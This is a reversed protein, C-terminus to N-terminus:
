LVINTKAAVVDSMSSLRAILLFSVYFNIHLSLKCPKDSTALSSESAVKVSYDEESLVESDSDASRGAALLLCFWSL